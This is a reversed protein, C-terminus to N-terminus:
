TQEAFNKKRKKSEDGIANYRITNVIGGEQEGGGMTIKNM